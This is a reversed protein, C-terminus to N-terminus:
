IASQVQTEGRVGSAKSIGEGLLSLGFLLFFMIVGPMTSIWWANIMYNKGAGMINGLTPTPPLVSLGIFGLTAEWIVMAALDLISVVLISAGINGLIYKFIIRFDSAGLAQAAKVYEKVKETLAVGRTVRAYIPWNGIALVAIIAPVTPTTVALISIALIVVPFSLQIDTVRMLLSNVWKGYYAALMGVVTGFIVIILVVSVSMFLSLRMGFILRSLMDRGLEDTGLPYTSVGGSLFFPPRFLNEVDIAYPDHPAVWNAFIVVFAYLAVIAAGIMAYKDHLFRAWFTTREMREPAAMDLPDQGRLGDSDSRAQGSNKAEVSLLQPM